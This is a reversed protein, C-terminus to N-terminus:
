STKLTVYLYDTEKGDLTDTKREISEVEYMSQPFQSRVYANIANKQADQSLGAMVFFQKTDLAKQIDEGIGDASFRVPLMLQGSCGTFLAAGAVAAASLGAIKMFNRRSLNM